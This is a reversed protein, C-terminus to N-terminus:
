FIEWAGNENQGSTQINSELTVVPTVSYEAEVADRVSSFYLAESNFRWAGIIGVPFICVSDGPWAYHSAIWYTAKNKNDTGMFFMNYKNEGNTPDVNIFSNLTTAKDITNYYTHIVTVPNGVSATVTGDGNDSGGTVANQGNYEAGKIFTGSTYQKTAGITKNETIEYQSKASDLYQEIDNAAISRGGQAGEGHGYVAGINNLVTEVNQYGKIGKFAVKNATEDASILNVVKTQKDVSLVRWAKGAEEQESFDTSNFTTSKESGTEPNGAQVTTYSASATSSKYNIYDGVEVVDALYMGSGVQGPARQQAYVKIPLTITKGADETDIQDNTIIEENTAGTEFAWYWYITQTKTKSNDTLEISDLITIAGSDM